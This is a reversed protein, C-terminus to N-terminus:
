NKGEVKGHIITILKATINMTGRAYPLSSQSIGTSHTAFFESDWWRKCLRHMHPFSPDLPECEQVGDLLAKVRHYGAVDKMNANRWGNSLDADFANVKVGLSALSHVFQQDNILMPTTAKKGTAVYNWGFIWYPYKENLGATLSVAYEAVGSVFDDVKLAELKEYIDPGSSKPHTLDGRVENFEILLRSLRDSVKVDKGCILSPWKVLKDAFKGKRLIDYIEKEPMCQKELVERRKRNLYAEVFSIGFYLAATFHHYRIFENQEEKTAISERFLSAFHQWSPNILWPNM